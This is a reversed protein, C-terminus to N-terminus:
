AYNGASKIESFAEIIENLSAPLEPAAWGCRSCEGNADDWCDRCQPRRCRGCLRLDAEHHDAICLQCRGNQSRPGLIRDWWQASRSLLPVRNQLCLQCRRREFDWCSDDCVVLACRPCRFVVAQLMLRRACLSCRRRSFLRALIFSLSSLAAVPVAFWFFPRGPFAPRAACLGLLSAGASLMPFQWWREISLELFWALCTGGAGCICAASVAGAAGFLIGVFQACACLCFVGFILTIQATDRRM